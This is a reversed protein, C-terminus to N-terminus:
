HQIHLRLTNTCLRINIVKLVSPLKTEQAEGRHQRSRDVLFPNKRKERNAMPMAHQQKRRKFEEVVSDIDKQTAVSYIQTDDDKEEEGDCSLEALVDHASEPSEDSGESKLAEETAQEEHAPSVEEEKALTIIVTPNSKDDNKHRSEMYDDTQAVLFFIPQEQLRDFCDSDKRVFLEAYLTCMDSFTDKIKCAFYSADEMVATEAAKKMKSFKARLQNYHLCLELLVITRITWSAGTQKYLNAAANARSVKQVLFKLGPRMDFECATNYSDELCNLLTFLQKRTLYQMM